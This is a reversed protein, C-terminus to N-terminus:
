GDARGETDALTGTGWNEGEVGYLDAIEAETEGRSRVWAVCPACVGYGTDRNWHQHWRGADEGCVCCSLNRIVGKAM